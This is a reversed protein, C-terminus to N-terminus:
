IERFLYRRLIDIRSDLTEPEVVTIKSADVVQEVKDKAAVFIVAIGAVCLLAIGEDTSLGYEGLFAQMVGPHGAARM